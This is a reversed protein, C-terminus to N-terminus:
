SHTQTDKHSRFFHNHSLYINRINYFFDILDPKSSIHWLCAYIDDAYLLM